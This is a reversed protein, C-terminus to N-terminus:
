ILLPVLFLVAFRAVRIPVDFCDPLSPPEDAFAASASLRSPPTDGDDRCCPVRPHCRRAIAPRASFIHKDYVVGIVLHILEVRQAAFLSSFLNVGVAAAKELIGKWIEESIPNVLSFEMLGAVFYGLVTDVSGQGTTITDDRRLRSAIEPLPAPEYYVKAEEGTAAPLAALIGGGPSNLKMVIGTTALSRWTMLARLTSIAQKSPPRNHGSFRTILPPSSQRGGTARSPGAADGSSSSRSGHRRSSIATDANGLGLGNVLTEADDESIVLYTVKEWPFRRLDDDFPLPSPNLIIPIRREHAVNIYELTIEAGIENQLVLHTIPPYLAESATDAPCNNM